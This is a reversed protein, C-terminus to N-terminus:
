NCVRRTKSLKQKYVPNCYRFMNSLVITVVSAAQTYAKACAGRAVFVLEAV